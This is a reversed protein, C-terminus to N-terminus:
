RLIPIEHPVADPEDPDCLSIHQSPVFDWILELNIEYEIISINVDDKREQISSDCDPVPCTNLPTQVTLKSAVM